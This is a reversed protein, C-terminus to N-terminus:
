FVLLLFGKLHTRGRNLKMIVEEMVMATAMDAMGM